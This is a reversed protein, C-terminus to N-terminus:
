NVQVSHGNECCKTCTSVQDMEGTIKFFFFGEPVLLHILCGGGNMHAVTVTGTLAGTKMETGNM